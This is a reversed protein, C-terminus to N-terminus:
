LCDCAISAHMDGVDNVHVVARVTARPDVGPGGSCANM